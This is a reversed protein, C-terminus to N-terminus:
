QEDSKEEWFNNQTVSNEESSGGAAVIAALGCTINNLRDAVITKCRADIIAAISTLEDFVQEKQEETCGSEIETYEDLLKVLSPLLSKEIDNMIMPVKSKLHYGLTDRIVDLQEDMEECVNAIKSFDVTDEDYCDLMYLGEEGEEKSSVFCYFSFAVVVFSMLSTFLALIALGISGMENRPTITEHWRWIFFCVPGVHFLHVLCFSSFDSVDCFSKEDISFALCIFWTLLLFITLFVM